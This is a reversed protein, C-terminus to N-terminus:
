GIQQIGTEYQNAHPLVFPAHRAAMMSLTAAQPGSLGSSLAQAPATNNREM